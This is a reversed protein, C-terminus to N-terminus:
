LKVANDQWSLQGSRCFSVKDILLVGDNFRRYFNDDNYM